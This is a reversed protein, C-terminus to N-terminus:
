MSYMVSGSLMYVIIWVSGTSEVGKKKEMPMAWTQNQNQVICQSNTPRPGPFQSSTYLITTLILTARCFWCTWAKYKMHWCSIRTQMKYQNVEICTNDYNSIYKSSLEEMHEVVWIEWKFAWDEHLFLNWLTSGAGTWIWPIMEPMMDEDIM